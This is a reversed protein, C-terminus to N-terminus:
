SEPASSAFSMMKLWTVFIRNASFNLYISKRTGGGFNSMFTLASM